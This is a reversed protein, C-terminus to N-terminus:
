PKRTKRRTPKVPRNSHDTSSKSKKVKNATRSAHSKKGSKAGRNTRSKSAHKELVNNRRKNFRKIRDQIEAICENPDFGREKRTRGFVEREVDSLGETPEQKSTPEVVYKDGSKLSMKYLAYYGMMISQLNELYVRMGQAWRLTQNTGTTPLEDLRNKIGEMRLVFTEVAGAFLDRVGKAEGSSLKPHIFLKRM